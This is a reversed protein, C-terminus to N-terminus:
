SMVEEIRNSCDKLNNMIEHEWFRLVLWGAEILSKTIRADAEKGDGFGCTHCKHWYCGDCFIAIKRDNHFIAIDPQGIIRYHTKFTIGRHILENQLAKEIKTDKSPIIQKLRNESMKKRTSLKVVHGKMSRSIRESRIKIREDTEKTLGKCWIKLEGDQFRKKLTDGAKRAIVPNKAPPKFDIEKFRKKISESIKNKVTTTHHKGYFPNREKSLGTHAHKHIRGCKKCQGWNHGKFSSTLEGNKLMRRRTENGKLGAIRAVNPHQKWYGQNNLFKQNTKWTGM